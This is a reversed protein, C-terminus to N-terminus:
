RYGWTTTSLGTAFELYLLTSHAEYSVGSLLTSNVPISTVPTYTM